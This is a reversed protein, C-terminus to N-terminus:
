LVVRAQQVGMIDLQDLLRDRDRMARAEEQEDDGSTVVRLQVVFRALEDPTMTRTRQRLALVCAEWPERRGDCTVFGDAGVDVAVLGASQDFDIGDPENAACAALGLLVFAIPATRSM